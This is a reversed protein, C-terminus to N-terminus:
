SIVFNACWVPQLPRLQLLSRSPRKAFSAIIRCL